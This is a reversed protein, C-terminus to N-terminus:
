FNWGNRQPITTDAASVSPSSVPRPTKEQYQGGRSACPADQDWLYPFPFFFPHHTRFLHQLINYRGGRNKEM